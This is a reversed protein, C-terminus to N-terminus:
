WRCNKMVNNELKVESRSDKDISICSDDLSSLFNNRISVFSVDDTIICVKCNTINNNEISVNKVNELRIGRKSNFIKSNKIIIDSSDCKSFDISQDGWANYFTVNDIILNNVCKGYFNRHANNAIVNKVLINKSNEILVNATFNSIKCNRLIVNETEVIQIGTELSSQYYKEEISSYDEIVCNTISVNSSGHILISKNILTLNNLYIESSYDVRLTTEILTLNNLSINTSHGIRISMNILTLNDLTFNSVGRLYWLGTMKCVGLKEKGVTDHLIQYYNNEKIFYSVGDFCNQQNEKIKGCEEFAKSTNYYFRNASSFGIASYCIKRFSDDDGGVIDCISEAIKVNPFRFNIKMGLSLFCAYKCEGEWLYCTDLSGVHPFNLNIKKFWGVYCYIRYPEELSNCETMLVLEKLFNSKTNQKIVSYLWPLNEYCVEKSSFNECASLNIKLDSFEEFKDINFNIPSWKREEGDYHYVDIENELSLNGLLHFSLEELLGEKCWQNFEIRDCESVTLNNPIIMGRGIAKGFGKYCYYKNEELKDCEKTLKDIDMYNSGAIGYGLVDYCEKYSPPISSFDFPFKYLNYLFILIVLAIFIIKYKEYKEILQGLFIGNLSIMPVSLFILVYTYEINTFLGFLFFMGTYIILLIEKGPKRGKVLRSINELSLYFFPLLFIIPFSRIIKVLINQPIGIVQHGLFADSFGRVMEKNLISLYFTKINTFALFPIFVIALGGLFIVLKKFDARKNLLNNIQVMCSLILVFIGLPHFSFSIASLIGLVLHLFYSRKDSYLFYAVILTLFCFFDTLYLWPRRLFGWEVSLFLISGILATKFNFFKKLFLYNIILMLDMILISLFISSYLFSHFFKYLPVNLFIFFMNSLYKYSPLILKFNYKNGIALEKALTYLICTEYHWYLEFFLIKTFVFISNLLILILLILSSRNKIAKYKPLKSLLNFKNSSETM